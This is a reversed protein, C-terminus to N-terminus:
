TSTSPRGALLDQLSAHRFQYIPGVTRLLGRNRADELFRLLRVPSGASRRLEVFALCARFAESFGILEAVVVLMGVRVGFIMAVVLGEALGFAFGAVMGHARDAAFSRVPNLAEATADRRLGLAVAIVVVVALAAGSVLGWGPGFGASIVAGGVVGILGGFILPEPSVAARWEFLSLNQPLGHPPAFALGFVLGFGLGFTSTAAVLMALGFQPGFLFAAVAGLVLGALVGATGGYVVATRLGLIRSSTVGFVAAFVGAAVSSGSLAGVLGFVVAGYLALPVPSTWEVIHWWALDRSHRRNMNVAVYRLTAEAQEVSYRPPPSGSRPSYAATVLRGLLYSEVVERTRTRVTNVRGPDAGVAAAGAWAVSDVLRGVDDSGRYTDRILTLALPSGLAEALGGDPDRRLEALLRMWGRPPSATTLARELYDAAVTGPIRHLGVVAAGVLLHLQAASVMESTRTLLVMRLHSRSLAELMLARLRENVEDLGDLILSVGGSFVLSRLATRSAPVGLAPYTTAIQDATWDEISQRRPDWSRMTFMVPIPVQPARGSDEARYQLARLLLLIGASTKGIGPAGSVVLRGTSLGGYLLHLDEQDGGRMLLEATASGLGPLPGFLAPGEPVQLITRVPSSCEDGRVLSWRVPIPVPLMLGRERAAERWQRDVSLALTERVLEMPALDGDEAGSRMAALVLGASVLTLGALLWWSRSEAQLWGLWSPWGAAATAAEIVVGIAVALVANVVALATFLRAGGRREQGV